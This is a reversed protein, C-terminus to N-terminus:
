RGPHITAAGPVLEPVSPQQDASRALAAAAADLVEEVGVQLLAPHVQEGPLDGRESRTGHWIARHWPRDAPPGWYAPSMPGFLTVSPTGYATAVHSIGTDGSIVVRAHAVMGALEGLDTAPVASADLGAEAAVRGAVERESASGTVVVTHGADRLRRAVAAYRSVPWRRSASKAGPHVITLGKPGDPAALRLDAPDAVIGYYGLMRCWRPVEHEEVVWDPGDAHVESRFGWLKGPRADLLMRHSEPGSGHLNVALSPADIPWSAPGLGPTPLIRDVGGILTILPTLWAPAALVLEDSPFARRLARLAPVGTALDGVGLARLVLIM